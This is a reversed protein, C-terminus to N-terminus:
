PGPLPTVGLGSRIYVALMLWSWAGIGLVVIDGTLTAAVVLSLLIIGLVGQLLVGPSGLTSTLAGRGLAADALALILVNIAASGLVDNVSLAPTGALSATTAVALEPLSTMGGLLLVGLIERGLGTEMAIADAYRALRTGAFWVVAASGLFIAVNAWLPLARFM